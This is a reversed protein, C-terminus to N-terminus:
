HHRTMLRAAFLERMGRDMIEHRMRFYKSKLKKDKDELQQTCDELHMFRAAFEALKTITFIEYIRKGLWLFLLYEVIREVSSEVIFDSLDIYSGKKTIQAGFPFVFVKLIRQTVLSYAHPYIIQVLGISGSLVEKIIHNRLEIAQNFMTDESIGKFATFNVGKEQAYIKGRDGIVMLKGPGKELEVFAANMVHMNLGGLLGIDSTVPIIGVVNTAPKIFPHTIGEMNIGALFGDVTSSFEEFVNIKREFVHFQSIAIGKLVKLLASLGGYFDIDKKVQVTFSM